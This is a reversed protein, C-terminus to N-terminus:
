LGLRLHHKPTLAALPLAVIANTVPQVFLRVLVAPHDRGLMAAARVLNTANSYDKRRDAAEIRNGAADEMVIHRDGIRGIQEARVLFVADRPALPHRLQERFQEVVAAFDTKALGYAKELVAQSM